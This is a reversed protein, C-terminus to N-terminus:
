WQTREKRVGNWCRVPNLKLIEVRSKGVGSSARFACTWLKADAFRAVEFWFLALLKGTTLRKSSSAWLPAKLRNRLGFIMRIFSFSLKKLLEFIESLSIRLSICKSVLNFKNMPRRLGSFSVLDTQWITLWILKPNKLVFESTVQFDFTHIM